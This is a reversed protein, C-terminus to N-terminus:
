VEVNMKHLLEMKGKPTIFLERSHATKRIWDEQLMMNLLSAGLAGAVHHRRESWDLCPHAFSRKQRALENTHIGISRFWDTGHVSIQYTKGSVELINKRVLADTIVVGAKGALHDYCMRAYTIGAPAVRETRKLEWSLPLLSAMSEIAQAVDPNAYRFYRHRGQKEVILICADVLRSLHSSASQCSIDACLSLETATYARGDLLHWLMILRSKDGLLSALHSFQNEFEM